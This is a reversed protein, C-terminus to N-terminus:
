DRIGETSSFSKEIVIIHKELIKGERTGGGDYEVGWM